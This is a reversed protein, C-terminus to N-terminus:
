QVTVTLVPNGNIDYCSGTPQLLRLILDRENSSLPPLMLELWSNGSGYLGTPIEDPLVGTFEDTRVESETDVVLSFPIAGLRGDGGCSVSVNFGGDHDVVTQDALLQLEARMAYVSVATLQWSGGPNQISFTCTCGDGGASQNSIGIGAGAFDSSTQNSGVVGLAAARYITSSGANPNFFDAGVYIESRKPLGSLTLVRDGTAFSDPAVTGWSGSVGSGPTAGVLNEWQYIDIYAM